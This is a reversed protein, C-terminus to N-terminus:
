QHRRSEAEQKRRNEEQIEREREVKKRYEEEERKKKEALEKEEQIQRRKNDRCSGCYGIHMRNYSNWDNWTIVNYMFDCYICRLEVGSGSYTWTKNSGGDYCRQCYGYRRILTGSTYWENSTIELYCRSCNNCLIDMGM